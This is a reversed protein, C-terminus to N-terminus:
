FFARLLSSYSRRASDILKEREEAPVKEEKIAVDILSIVDQLVEHPEKKFDIDIKRVVKQSGDEAKEISFFKETGISFIVHHKSKPIGNTAM